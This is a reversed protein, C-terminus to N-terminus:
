RLFLFLYLLLFSSIQYYLIEGTVSIAKLSKIDGPMQRMKFPSHQSDCSEFILTVRFNLCILNVQNVALSSSKLRTRMKGETSQLSYCMRLVTTRTSFTAIGGHMGCLLPFESFEFLGGSTLPSPPCPHWAQSCSHIGPVWMTSLFVSWQLNDVSRQVSLLCAFM